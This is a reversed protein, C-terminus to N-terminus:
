RDSLRLIWLQRCQPKPHSHPWSLFRMLGISCASIFPRTNLLVFYLILSLQTEKPFLCMGSQILDSGSLTLSVWFVALGCLLSSTCHNM